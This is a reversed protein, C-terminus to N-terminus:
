VVFFCCFCSEPNFSVTPGPSQHSPQSLHSLFCDVNEPILSMSTCRVSPAICQCSGRTHSVKQFFIERMYRLFRSITIEYFMDFLQFLKYVVQVVYHPNHPVIKSFFFKSCRVSPAICQCSGRPHPVSKPFFIKHVAGATCYMSLEWTQPVSKSFFSQAGRWRHLVNVAGVHTHSLKRNFNNKHIM